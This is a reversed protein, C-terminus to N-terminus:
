LKGHVQYWSPITFLKTGQWSLLFMDSEKVLGTDDQMGQSIRNAMVFIIYMHSALQTPIHKVLKSVSLHTTHEVLTFLTSFM